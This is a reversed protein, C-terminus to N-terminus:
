CYVLTSKGYNVVLPVHPVEPTKVQVDYVVLVKTMPRGMLGAPNRFKNIAALKSGAAMDGHQMTHDDATEYPFILIM